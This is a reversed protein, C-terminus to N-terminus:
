VGKAKFVVVGCVKAEMDPQIKPNPWVPNLAQLYRQGDEVILKKFTAENSGLTCVVVFRGHDAPVNPDVFILEGDHFQPEMSVGRVRLVFTEPSCRVPCRFWEIADHQSVESLETWERAQVWSLVPYFGQGPGEANASPTTEDRM